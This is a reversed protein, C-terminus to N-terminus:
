LLPFSVLASSFPHAEVFLAKARFVADKLLFVQASKNQFFKM